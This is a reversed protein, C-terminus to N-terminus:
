LPRGNITAISGQRDLRSHDRLRYCDVGRLIRGTLDAGPLTLHVADVRLRDHHNLDRGNLLKEAEAVGLHAQDIQANLQRALQALTASGAPDRLGLECLQQTSALWANRGHLCAVRLSTELREQAPEDHESGRRGQLDGSQRFNGGIMGTTM